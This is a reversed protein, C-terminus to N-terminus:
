QHNKLSCDNMFATLQKENLGVGALGDLRKTVTGNECFVITPVVDVRYKEALNDADDIMVRLFHQENGEAQKEFIPLFRKCFPCWSSYFLILARDRVKLLDNLENETLIIEHKDITNM